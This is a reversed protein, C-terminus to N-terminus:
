VNRLIKKNLLESNMYVLYHGIRGTSWQKLAKEYYNILHYNDLGMLSIKKEKIVDILEKEPDDHKISNTFFVLLIKRKTKKFYKVIFYLSIFFIIGLVILLKEM